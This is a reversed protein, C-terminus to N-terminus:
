SSKSLPPPSFNSLYPFISSERGSGCASQSFDRESVSHFFASLIKERVPVLPLHDELSSDQFTEKSPSVNLRSSRGDFCIPSKGSCNTCHFHSESFIEGIDSM